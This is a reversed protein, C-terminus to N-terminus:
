ELVVLPIVDAEAYRGVFYLGPEVVFDEHIEVDFVTVDIDSGFYIERLGESYCGPLGGSRHSVDYHFRYGSARFEGFVREELFRRLRFQVM